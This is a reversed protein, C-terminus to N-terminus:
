RRLFGEGPLQQGQGQREKRIRGISNLWRVSFPAHTLLERPAPLRRKLFGSLM